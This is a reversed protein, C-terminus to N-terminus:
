FYRKNYCCLVKSGNGMLYTQNNYERNLKDRAFQLKRLLPVYKSFDYEIEVNKTVDLRSISCKRVDLFIGSDTLEKELEMLFCSYDNNNALYM